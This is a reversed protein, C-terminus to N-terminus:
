EKSAFLVVVNNEQGILHLTEDLVQHQQLSFSLTSVPIRNPPGVVFELKDGCV